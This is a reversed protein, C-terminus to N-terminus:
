KHWVGLLFRPQHRDSGSQGQVESPHKGRDATWNDLLRKALWGLVLFSGFYIIATYLARMLAIYGM